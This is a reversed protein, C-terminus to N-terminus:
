PLVELHENMLFHLDQIGIDYALIGNWVERGGEWSTEWGSYDASLHYINLFWISCYEPFFPVFHLVDICLAHNAPWRSRKM